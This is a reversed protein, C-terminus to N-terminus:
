IKQKEIFVTQPKEEIKKQIKLQNLLSPNIFTKFYLVKNTDQTKFEVDILYAVKYDTNSQYVLFTEKKKEFEFDRPAFVKIVGTGDGIGEVKLKAKGDEILYFINKEGLFSFLKIKSLNSVREYVKGILFNKYAFVLDGKSTKEEPDLILISSYISSDKSFLVNFNERNKENKAQYNLEEKLKSNEIELLRIINDPKKFIEMKARLLNNELVLDQKSKEIISKKIDTGMDVVMAFLFPFLHHSIFFVFAFVPAYLFINKKYKYRDKM